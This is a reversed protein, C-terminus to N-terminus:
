HWANFGSSVTCTFSSAGVNLTGAGTSTFESGASPYVNIPSALAAINFGGTGTAPDATASNNWEGQSGSHYDALWILKNSLDVEICLTDGSTFGAATGITTPNNLYVTGTTSWGVSTQGNNGPVHNDAYVSALGATALGPATGGVLIEFHWKGATHNNTGLSMTQVGSCGSCTWTLNGNSFTVCPSGSCTQYINPNWTSYVQAQCCPIAIVPQWPMWAACLLLAALALLIRGRM